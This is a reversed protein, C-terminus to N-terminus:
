LGARRRHEAALEEARERSPTAEWRVKPAERYTLASKLEDQLVGSEVELITGDDGGLEYVGWREPAKAVTSREMTQWHKHLSM